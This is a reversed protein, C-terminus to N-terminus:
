VKLLSREFMGHLSCVYICQAFKAEYIVEGAIKGQALAGAEFANSIICGHDVITRKASHDAGIHQDLADM